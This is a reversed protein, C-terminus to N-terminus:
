GKQTLIEMLTGDQVIQEFSADKASLTNRMLTEVPVDAVVDVYTVSEHVEAGGRHLRDESQNNVIRSQSRQLYVATDTVQLGDVGTGGADVSVLAYQISGTQFQRLGIEREAQTTSGDIRFYTAAPKRKDLRAALLNGLRRHVYFIVVQKGDPLDALLHELADLKASPEVLEVTDGWGQCDRCRLDHAAPESGDPRPGYLPEACWCFREAYAPDPHPSPEHPDAPGPQPPTTRLGTADCTPCATLDLTAAAAQTMRLHAVAPEVAPRPPTDDDPDAARVVLDKVVSNYADRQKKSLSAERTLHVKDPLDPLVLAKPRRMMLYDTVARYEAETLPNLGEPALGGDARPVMNAYRSLFRSKAPFDDPRIFHLLSWLDDVEKETPTGTLGWRHRVDPQHALCWIARTSKNTPDKTRHVEDCVVVGFSLDNLEGPCRECSSQRKGPSNDPDCVECRRLSVSGYPALRSHRFTLEYNMILVEPGADEADEFLAIQKRRQAATGDLVVISDPDREPFWRLWERKWQHKVSAPTVVLAPTSPSVAGSAEIAAITQLTNHTVVYERGHLYLSDAAEVSICLTEEQGVHEVSEIARTPRSRRKAAQQAYADRKRPTRFPNEDAHPTILVRHSPRAAHKSGDALTYHTDRPDAVTATWGLSRALEAVHETLLRSASSFEVFGRDTSGDTDLLGALLDRRQQESATLYLAPVFKDESRVRVGLDTLAQTVPGVHLYDARLPTKRGREQKLDVRFTNGHTLLATEVRALVNDPAVPEGNSISVTRGSLAGDGLLAGLLYPDVPLDREPYQVPDTVPIFVRRNGRPSKANPKGRLPVTGDAFDTTKTVQLPSGRRTRTPTNWAWLHDGDVVVSSRDSFTVRYVDKVGQPHIATVRTPKGDRGFVRDGPRVNGYTMDDRDPSPLAASLVGAKGTGMEDLLLGHGVTLLWLVGVKQYGRMAAHLAEPTNEYRGLVEDVAARTSPHDAAALGAAEDADVTSRMAHAPFVEAWYTQRGWATLADDPQFTPIASRLAYLSAFSAPLYWQGNQRVRAGPISKIIPVQAVPATLNIVPPDTETDLAAIVTM